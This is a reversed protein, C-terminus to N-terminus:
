SNLIFLFSVNPYPSLTEVSAEVKSSAADVEPVSESTEASEPLNKRTVPVPLLALGIQQLKLTLLKTVHNIFSHSHLIYRTSLM